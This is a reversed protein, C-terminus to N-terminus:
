LFVFAAVGGIALSPAMALRHQRCQCGQLAAQQAVGVWTGEIVECGEGSGCRGCDVGAQGGHLFGDLDAGGDLQGPAASLSGLSVLWLSKSLNNVAQM